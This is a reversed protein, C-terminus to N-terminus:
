YQLAPPLQTVRKYAERVFAPILGANDRLWVEVMDDLILTEGWDRSSRVVRGYNQALEQGTWYAVIGPNMEAIAKNAGSSVNAVPLKVIVQCRCADDKFDMGVGISPSILVGDPTALWRGVDRMVEGTAPLFLPRDKVMSGMDAARAYSVSHTAIRRDTRQSVVKQYLRKHTTKQLETMRFTVRPAPISILPRRAVPFTSPVEFYTLQDDPIGLLRCTYRTMTGSMLIVRNVGRFLYKESYRGLTKPVVELGDGKVYHWWCHDGAKGLKDLTQRLRDIYARGGLRAMVSLDFVAKDLVRRAQTSWSIWSLLTGTERPMMCGARAIAEMDRGTLKVSAFGRLCNEALHAEDLILTEIDTGLCTSYCSLTMWAAYNTSVTQAKTADERAAVAHCSGDGGLRGSNYPCYFDGDAQAQCPAGDCSLERTTVLRDAWAVNRLGAKEQLLKCAYSGWGRLDHIGVPQARVASRLIAEQPWAALHGFEVDLQDQLPKNATLIMARDPWLLQSLSASLLGKGSNHTVTFDGMLYRGDGDLTFGYYDGEGFAEVSFGTRLVSKIQTRKPAIKRPIRCPITSCDGSVSVRWYTSSYDNQCSKVCERIYCALGLSRGVFAVDESLKRSGSIFDYGGCRMHGDTDMLGAFLERRAGFSAHMYLSPIFKELSRKGLLGLQRLAERLAIKSQGKEGALFHTPCRNSSLSRRYRLGWKICQYRVEEEIAADGKCVGVSKTLCGDGLLIGLFYPDIPL